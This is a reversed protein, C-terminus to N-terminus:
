FNTQKYIKNKKVIPIRRYPRRQSDIQIGQGHGKGSLLSTILPIGLSAALMGLFGGNQKQKQTLKIVGSGVLQKRQNPTLYPSIMYRKDNAVSIMGNGLLKSVGTSALGSLAGIGLPALIKPAIKAAMPLITKGLLGALAGLFGGNQGQSSMQKKSITIELGKKNAVAKKIQNIQTKTLLLPFNGHLQEHKLRFTHPIKNNYARALNKKQGDTLNVKYEIYNSSM